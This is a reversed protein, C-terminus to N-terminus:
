SASFAATASAVGSRMLSIQPMSAAVIRATACAKAVAFRAIIRQPMPM